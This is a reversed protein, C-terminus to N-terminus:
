FAPLVSHWVEEGDISIALIYRSSTSASGGVEITYEGSLSNRRVTENMRRGRIDFVSFAINRRTPKENAFNVTIIRGGNPSPRMNISPRSVTGVAGKVKNAKTSSGIVRLVVTYGGGYGNETSVTVDTSYTGPALGAVDIANTLECLTDGCQPSITLWIDEAGSEANVVGGWASADYRQIIQVPASGSDLDLLVTDQEFRVSETVLRYMEYGALLFAGNGWPATEDLDVSGPAKAARQVSGLKGNPLLYTVLSQWAQRAVPEYISRELHGNRIGWAMAQCFFGSGSNEPNIGLSDTLLDSRWLGDDHRCELLAAMMEKFQTIYEPRDPHDEPFYELLRVMGSLVWGNGRSWFEGPQKKRGGKDRYYLHTDPCYLRESTNWWFRNMAEHLEPDDMAVAMRVLGPPAMFQLDCWGWYEDKGSYNHTFNEYGPQILYLNEPRPDLFYFDLYVQICAQNDANDHLVSENPEWNGHNGWEFM